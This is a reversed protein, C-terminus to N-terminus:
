TSSRMAEAEAQRVFIVGTVIIILHIAIFILYGVTDYGRWILYIDDLVGHTFELWVLLWVAGLYRRPNFSAWLMFTAIGFVEFAFPSWGDVFAMITDTTTPFPFAVMEGAFSPNILVFYLNMVALLLYFGGVIRFWWTLKKM